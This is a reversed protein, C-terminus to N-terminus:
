PGAPPTPAPSPAGLHQRFFAIIRAYLHEVMEAEALMHTLGALPVFDHPKGARLLANSMKLAHVFLVNDDATGHVILLPRELRDAYTLVNSVEYAEPADQPLGLYRETYHTDYDQWDTVPAGAVAAKFVDGHLMVAMASAYGGFSWGFIGARSTDIEPFRKGLAALTEAQDRLPLTILDGKVSRQWARGRDPTGRGDMSVVIFGQDAFWQPLYYRDRGRHVMRSTPGAYVHVIVPYSRRADFDRPRTIAARIAREGVTVLETTPQYDLEVAQSALRGVAKGARDLLVTERGRQETESTIALLTGARAMEADHEGAATTLRVPPQGDLFVRWLHQTTPDDSAAIVMEGRAQDVGVLGRYGFGPDSLARAQSGDPNRLELQKAGGRETTWLFGRKPGLWHPVDQDLELWADDHEVLLERTSGTAPDVALVQLETQLRNQTVITLPGDESWVVTTLYPYRARDWTVWVPAQDSGGAIALIALQVEANAEGPRPYASSAPARDPHMADAIHISGVGATDTRQVALHEGDPSFWYGHDRDMEEQAVFEALGWTVSDADRQTLRTEVGRELDVVHLDGAVVYAIHSGAPSPRPDVPAGAPTEIRRVEGSATDLVFLQGSLPILLCRGGDMPYFRAIGRAVLRQRERRAREEATLEETGGGLLSEASALLREEGAAVDFVYLDRVQSRGPSRLFFVKSGDGSPAIATPHGLSLRYTEAYTALFDPDPIEAAGLTGALLMTTM